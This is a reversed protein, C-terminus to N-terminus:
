YRTVLQKIISCHELYLVYPYLTKNAISHLIEIRPDQRLVVFDQQASGVAGRTALPGLGVRGAGRLGQCGTGPGPQGPHPGLCNVFGVFIFFFSAFTFALAVFGFLFLLLDISEAGM